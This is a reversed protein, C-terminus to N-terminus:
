FNKAGGENVIRIIGKRRDPTVMRGDFNMKGAKVEILVNSRQGGGMGM